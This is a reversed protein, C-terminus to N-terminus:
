KDSKEKQIYTFESDCETCIFMSAIGEEEYGMDELDWDSQWVMKNGDVPCRMSM